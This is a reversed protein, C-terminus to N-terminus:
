DLVNVLHFFPFCSKYVQAYSIFFLQNPTFDLGPLSAEESKQEAVWTRYAKFIIYGKKFYPLKGETKM